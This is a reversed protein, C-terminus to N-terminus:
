TLYIKRRGEASERPQPPFYSWKNIHHCKKRTRNLTICQRKISNQYVKLIGCRMHALKIERCFGTQQQTQLYTSAFFYRRVFLHLYRRRMFKNCMIVTWLSLQFTTNNEGVCSRDLITQLKRSQRFPFRFRLTLFFAPLFVRQFFDNYNERSCETKYLLIDTFFLARTALLDHMTICLHRLMQTAWKQGSDM